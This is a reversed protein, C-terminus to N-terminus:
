DDRSQVQDAAVPSVEDAPRDLAGGDGGLEAAVEGGADDARFMPGEDRLGVGRVEPYASDGVAGRARPEPEPEPEPGARGGGNGSAARFGEGSGCPAQILKPVCLSNRQSMCRAFGSGGAGGGGGGAGTSGTVWTSTKSAFKVPAHPM